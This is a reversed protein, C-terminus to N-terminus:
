TLGEPERDRPGPAIEGARALRTQSRSMTRMPAALGCAAELDVDIYVHRGARRVAMDIQVAGLARGALRGAEAIALQRVRQRVRGDASLLVEVDRATAIDCAENLRVSARALDITIMTSGFYRSGEVQGESLVSSSAFLIEIAARSLHVRIEREFLSVRRTSLM